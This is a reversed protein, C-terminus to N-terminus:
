AECILPMDSALLSEVESGAKAARRRWDGQLTAKITRTLPRFSQQDRWLRAEIRTGILSWTEPSICAQSHHEWWPAQTHSEQDQCVHPIVQGPDLTALPSIPFSTRKGLYLFHAAPAAGRICGLVLYHDTNHSADRVTINQFLCSDTGLIYNTRSRVEQGGLHMAWTHGDKLWTNHRPLFHGSTDELGEEALAASIGEDWKRVEPAALDTNLDGVVVLMDGRPRKGIAAVVDEITSANDPALYCGVIYWRRDGPALQFRVVNARHTQIAEVSFHEAARYFISVGGSHAIPAETAVVKYGSSERTYIRKTLKTEQFVGLDM